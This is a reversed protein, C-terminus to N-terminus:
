GTVAGRQQRRVVLSAFHFFLAFLLGRLNLLKGDCRMAECNAGWAWEVAVHCPPRIGAGGCVVQLQERSM